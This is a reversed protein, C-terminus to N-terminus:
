AVYLPSYSNHFAADGDHKRPGVAPSFRSRGHCEAFSSLFINTNCQNNITSIMLLRHPQTTVYHSVSTKDHEITINMKGGVVRAKEAM